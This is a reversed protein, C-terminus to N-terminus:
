IKNKHKEIENAYKKRFDKISNMCVYMADVAEETLRIVCQSIHKNPKTEKVSKADNDSLRRFKFFYTEDDYFQFASVRRNKLKATAEVGDAFANIKIENM